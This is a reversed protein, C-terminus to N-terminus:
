LKMWRDQYDEWKLGFLKYIEALTKHPDGQCCQWIKEVTQEIADDDAVAEFCVSAIPSSVDNRRLWDRLHVPKFCRTVPMEYIQEPQWSKPNGGQFPCYIPDKTDISRSEVWCVLLKSKRSKSRYEKVLPKWFTDLLKQREEPPWRDIGRLTLCLDIGERDIKKCIARVVQQTSQRDHAGGKLQLREFLADRLDGIGRLTWGDALNFDKCVIKEAQFSSKLLCHLLWYFSLRQDSSLQVQVSLVNNFKRILAAYRITCDRRDFEYLLNEVCKWLPQEEEEWGSDIVDEKACQTILIPEGQNSAVPIQYQGELKNRLSVILSENTVRGNASNRPDLAKQLAASFISYDSKLDQKATEFSRSAALICRSRAHELDFKKLNLIAGSYCCDLIVIQQKIPSKVLVEQLWQLSIGKNGCKPNTDSTTLFGRKLGSPEVWGHGSFYFLATEPAQREDNPLFLQEIAKELMVMTVDLKGGVYPERTTRDIAEPLRQVTDFGGWDKLLGAVAEANESPSTLDNAFHYTNIGVILADRGM